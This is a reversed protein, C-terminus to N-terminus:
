FSDCGGFYKFISGTPGTPGPPGNPGTPGTPGTSGSKNWFNTEEDKHCLHGDM